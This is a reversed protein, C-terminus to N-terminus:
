ELIIYLGEKPFSIKGSSLSHSKKMYGNEDLIKIKSIRSNKIRFTARNEPLILPYGGLNFIKGAEEEWGSFKGETVMQILIKRSQSLKKGDLSIALISGYSNDCQIEINSLRIKGARSLFGCAGQAEPCDIQLVGKKYDWRIEGTASKIQNKSLSRKLNKHLIKKSKSSYSREVKGIYFALSEPSLGKEEEEQGTKRLADLNAKEAFFSGQFDFLDKLSLREEAVVPGEKLYGKRYLLALGPFQGLISPISLPFKTMSGEWFYGHIAFFCFGDLDQLSGYTACLFPFEAKFRNPNTWGIETLIHPFGQNQVFLLPLAQPELLGSRHSFTDGPSVAYSARQGKHPGGFYGHRDIVQGATYSYRELPALLAPDTTKWNSCSILPKVGLDRHFYSIMNKYFGRQTEVLFQLQDSMRKKKGGTGHGKKTMHWNVSVFKKLAVSDTLAINKSCIQWPGKDFRWRFPGHKWFKRSWFRYRESKPIRIKYRAFAEDSTRKNINTLWKGESLQSARDPFTNSSFWTKSPFNTQHPNEGEWWLYNEEAALFSGSFFLHFFLLFSIRKM